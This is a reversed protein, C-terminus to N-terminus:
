ILSLVMELFAICCPVDSHLVKGQCISILFLFPYPTSCLLLINAGEEECLRSPLQSFM